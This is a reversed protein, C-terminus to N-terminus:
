KADHSRAHAQDYAVYSNFATMGIAPAFWEKFGGKHGTMSLISMTGSLPLRIGYERGNFPGYGGSCVAVDNRGRCARGEHTALLSTAIPAAYISYEITKRLITKFRPAADSTGGLLLLAVLSLMIKM